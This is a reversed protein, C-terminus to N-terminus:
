EVPLPGFECHPYKYEDRYGEYDWEMIAGTNTVIIGSYTMSIIACKQYLQLLM